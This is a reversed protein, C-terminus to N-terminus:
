MNVACSAFAYLLLKIFILSFKEVFRTESSSSLARKKDINDAQFKHAKDLENCNICYGVSKM